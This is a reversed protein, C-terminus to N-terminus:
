TFHSIDGSSFFSNDPTNINISFYPSVITSFDGNLFDDVVNIMAPGKDFLFFKEFNIDTVLSLDNTGVVLLLGEETVTNGFVSWHTSAPVLEFVLEGVDDHTTVTM